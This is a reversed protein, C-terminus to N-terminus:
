PLFPLKDTKFGCAGRHGGGGYKVAIKSLDHHEKSPAHYLSVRWQKGDFDASHFIVIIDKMHFDKEAAGVM